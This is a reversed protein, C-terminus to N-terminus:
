SSLWNYVQRSAALLYNVILHLQSLAALWEEIDIRQNMAVVMFLCTLEKQKYTAFTDWLLELQEGKLEGLLYSRLLLESTQGKRLREQQRLAVLKTLIQYLEKKNVPKVLYDSVGSRLANRVYDFQNFGSLIVIYTSPYHLRVHEALEFGDMRPMSIDTIIVDVMQRSLFQVAEMGNGFSGLIHVGLEMNEIMSVIGLRIPKEDEVVIIRIMNMGGKLANWFKVRTGNM